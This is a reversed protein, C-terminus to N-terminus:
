RPRMIPTLVVAGPVGCTLSRLGPGLVCSHHPCYQGRLSSRPDGSWKRSPRYRQTALGEPFGREPSESALRWWRGKRARRRDWRM